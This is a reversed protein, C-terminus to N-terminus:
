TLTVVLAGVAFQPNVGNNVVLNSTLSGYLQLYDGTAMLCIGVAVETVPGGATMEGFSILAANAVQTTGSLTWGGTSRAVTPRVYGTYTGENTLASTSTDTPAVTHLSLRASGATTSAGLGTADGINIAGAANHFLLALLDNEFQDTAPM